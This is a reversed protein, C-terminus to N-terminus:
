AGLTAGGDIVLEQMTIHSASAAVLFLAAQAIQEPQAIRGLPIGLRYKEPDGALTRQRDAPQQWLQHLMPTDTSGPSLVNCRGGSGSLELALTKGFHALAAKAAGYAAMGFRPVRGANSAILVVAAHGRQQWHPLLQRCLYFASDVNVAFSARWSDDSTDSIGASQLLGAAHILLDPLADPQQAQQQCFARVAASDTLDLATVDDTAILDLGLVRYGDARAQRLVAQGVGGAAGTVWLLPPKVM